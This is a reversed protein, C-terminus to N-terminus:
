TIAAIAGEYTMVSSGPFVNVNNTLFDRPTAM